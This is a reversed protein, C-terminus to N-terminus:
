RQRAATRASAKARSYSRRTSVVLREVALRWRFATRQAAAEHEGMGIADNIRELGLAANGDADLRFMRRSFDHRRELNV